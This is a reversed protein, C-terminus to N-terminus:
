QWMKDRNKSPNFLLGCFTKKEVIEIFIYPVGLFFLEFSKKKTYYQQRREKM